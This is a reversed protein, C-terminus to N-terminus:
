RLDWAEFRNSLVPPKPNSNPLPSGIEPLQGDVVRASGTALEGGQCLEMVMYVFCDDEYTEHLRVVETEM